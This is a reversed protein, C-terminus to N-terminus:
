SEASLLSQMEEPSMQAIEQITLAIEDLIEQGGALEALVELLEAVTPKQFLERIPLELDFTQQIRNVLQAALLSHGGLYFFNDYIGVKSVGLIESWIATLVEESPSHATVFAQTIQPRSDDITLSARRDVKGNPNLPLSDLFVFAAPIMYNPLRQQLFDFLETNTITEGPIPVIYAVLRKENATEGQVMVVGQSVQPHQDLVAEIEGLEIRFGRIKVQHDSRGCFEITGDPLYRALDGTKYVTRSHPSEGPKKYGIDLPIFKKKTLDNRHLYGQALGVGGVYLEGKVGIPVPQLHADLIYVQTNAIPRGIPVSLGLATDTIVPFCCTFTTNETPGYGNIVRCEPFQHLLKQIHSVSLVDGGALLQRVPQLDELREDVMLHFLSATLWLTTVQYKQIIQGLEELSSQNPPAIALKAGNLLSGWIEFTSADFSIPALQLFVQEANLQVYNNAKVLSVVGRHRICVGKPKGTSGSTYMIYALDDAQSPISPNEPSEQKISESISELCTIKTEVQTPLQDVLHKQTLLLPPKADALMWSLRELPYNPDLPVYVGGAKLIALLAIAMELSREVCIGVADGLQVGQKILYHALQNSRSNLQTYTLSQDAFFLAVADPTKEVQAVFVQHIAMDVPYETETDNWEVLLQHQEQPSLMPLLGVSQEPTTVIEALLHQLHSTMRAITEAEFLDCNYEWTGMLGEPTEEMSLTLDFKATVTEIPLPTLSLGSLELNGLPANQLAFMVQFLPTHSLNREPQLAEVVQEFPVDQHAYGDLAVQKVQQLLEAFSPNGVIQTRLVLTNVFFGILSEIEARNRNAIPTGVLIDTQGSYRHLLTVFATQLTMFLTVGSNQSLAKIKETLQLSLTFDQKNGRFTQIAPRPKDTPLELLPPAGALQQQWYNLKAQLLEGTLYQRQWIAFDAYQVPLEPLPTPKGTCFAQYLASLEQIFIGVSWGDSIIHHITILLLHSEEGLRFLEVRLLPANQLNFPTEAALVLLRQIETTQEQTPLPQLDTLTVTVTAHPDIFQVPTGNVLKFCTRLIEHRRVIEALAQEVATVNLKGALQLAAPINYTATGGDLQELFWLRQQAWSLPIDLNERSVPTLPPATLELNTQRQSNILKALQIVTPSAFLVQLPLEIQFTERLRSILQTAILSHGGLEFFNDHIGINEVGLLLSFLDAIAQETDTRPLVFDTTKQTQTPAPLAKRDLKGNNTLPFIDLYVFATPIMYDPLNQKLHERLQSDTPTQTAVIYAVLRQDGPQDERVIVVVERIDAYKAIATEIEGLEIRFGRIKVQHDIRGLYEISGDPLYRALDGTKYLTLNNRHLAASFKKGEKKRQTSRTSRPENRRYNLADEYLIPILNNGWNGTGLQIFRDQTLEPRNLYGRAVGAGGVYMEGPVGIPVPQLQDNLIYLQLDPIAKGIVSSRSHTDAWTLPRYTVHVTTETIGYMNVLQPTRDGHRQFWPQLSEPELAEGGFVVWRLNLEVEAMEALQDVWILQRFASPTQNLVTVQEQSLLNYFAKPDRSVWYPVIVLRGGYLLAGWLEWVSFDFAYSHFLTWVDSSNFQYWNDTAKFLRAVNSHNVLVGKPKGTSGSTYIVYALNDPTVDCRPNEPSLQSLSEGDTDFCVTQIDTLDLTELWQSQTVLVPIQADSLMFALRDSPYDPDLPVYAGGAKLIGLIGIVMEVSREVSLGVLVDPKVGLTQLHHALQNARTNLEAYTLSTDAFVVATADPTKQVQSEFWQHLCQTVPYEGQISNWEQLIQQQEPSSLLLQNQYLASPAAVMATLANLYYGAYYTVQERCLQSTQYNLALNVQSSVLDLSFHAVLTFNTQEFTQYDLVESEELSLIGQYVHFHVFNFATEFLPQGGCLRQIESLPYRRHPLSGQEAQFVQQILELWTGGGLHSRMPLTNLFLGIIKEGDANEPRGNAVLGTLVDGQNTLLNLVRLHAALLVSKLPVGAQSALQKLGDSLEATIAVEEIGVEEKVATRSSEPWRPLETISVDALQSRWYQQTTESELAARELAVFDRFDLHPRPSPKLLNVYEQWLETLLSAVSWGDLIAHHFSFSLNFTEGSRRHVYFRLLPPKTWNFSHHKETEIWNNIVAQQEATTLDSIDDVQLPVDVNEHVLQLPESFGTLDFSTRLVAHRTMVQKIANQLGPLDLNARLHFSFVDHYVASDANLESHFVMGGQLATLPYADALEAPLKERDTESILSFPSIQSTLTFSVEKSVLEALEAITQYQFLQQLSLDWGVQNAKALIQISRISDGGLAFFNDHIGVQSVGLVEGWINALLEQEPTQPPTFDSGLETRVDPVPLKKRDLKGNATLPFADLSVFVAPIMYDPLQQKLYDRLEGNSPSAGDAVLYAVLRKNGPSDERVVVVTQRVHPHNALKAEIEGLEIRFGRIKVQDDIRGLYELNGDALYRALDGTKYLVEGGSDIFREATLEPRNLYGRTVGAGGVYMEGRVGVPVPQLFQDLIYVQLDPIPVGIVSSSCGADAMTLPRFTVHVTTETIGYMNVLQPCADGHGEFWPLLSTPDLAEGGFIVWRLGMKQEEERRAEAGRRSGDVWILQRFASPTQNLVTVGERCLLKYFEEPYRSVFFPVIVLRGGHLLAGWMEWVSFDFAYSHFLTWVDRADFNFWDQTAAFLRTVNSHNVLVGKPKGTSGSTYIVYALNEPLVGTQPNESSQLYINDRDIDIPSVCSSESVRKVEHGEHGEHNTKEYIQTLGTDLCIIKAATVPLSELWKAQTLLVSVQSDDLMFALREPPYEPDLPVYAGGAKLIGLLGVMMELSREVCIGVLVDPGVGLTQLYHALQNARTNLQSYTLSEEAFTVAVADPTKEVQQEFKQHLCLEVVYEHRSHLDPILKQREADSLLPLEQVTQQPNAVIATLLTQFNGAMRTITEPDFLDSNYEWNGILGQPTETMSLTLDFKSTIAEIPLQSLQLGPLELTGMPANQLAFMVQFLPTHSLNRQLQLADVVREFPVDQHTYADLAVQKVQQLLEAFPPNNELHSRLVLTNVFFGILAETEAQRNAIPSGVLIDTQGSYRHLLTVFAAELTMFLTVGFQQSLRNLQATLELPLPSDQSSGRFTQIAPRPRDTPLELLPPADELQKQWYNLKQNYAEGQLWERQWVAFDAYQITLEPLPSPKGQLFATYLNSLEPILIGLSWGDAVIHHMNILLVHSKESLKLLTARMLPATTLDFPKEADLIALETVKDATAGQLDVVPLTVNADPDIIQLAHGDVTTFSTRLVEHRRIVTQLAQELAPINLVGTMEVAAPMNYTASAGEMQYLFWLRQQSWSLPLNGQDRPVPTITAVETHSNLQQLFSIIEAKRDGLIGRIEPTLKGSPANCRLKVGLSSNPHDEVWLKIDQNGLESLFEAIPKM